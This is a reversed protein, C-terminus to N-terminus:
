LRGRGGGRPRPVGAVGAAAMLTWRNMGAGAPFAVAPKVFSIRRRTEAEAKGWFEGAVTLTVQRPGRAMARLLVDLGKYPRVIGFFM